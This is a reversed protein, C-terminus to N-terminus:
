LVHIALCLKHLFMSDYIIELATPIQWQLCEEQAAPSAEHAQSFRQAYACAVSDVKVLVWCLAQAVIQLRPKLSSYQESDQPEWHSCAPSPPYSM